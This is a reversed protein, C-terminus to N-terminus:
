KMKGELYKMIEIEAEEKTDFREVDEFLETDGKVQHIEWLDKGDSFYNPLEILSISCNDKSYLYQYKGVINRVNFSPDTQRADDLERWIKHIRKEQIIETM